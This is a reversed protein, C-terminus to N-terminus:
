AHSSIRLSATTSCFRTLFTLWTHSYFNNTMSRSSVYTSTIGICLPKSRTAGKEIKWNTPTAFGDVYSGIRTADVVDVINSWDLAWSLVFQTPRSSLSLLIYIVATSATQSIFGTLIIEMKCADTVFLDLGTATISRLCSTVDTVYQDVEPDLVEWPQYYSLFELLASLIGQNKLSTQQLCSAIKSM